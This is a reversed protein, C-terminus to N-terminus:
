EFDDLMAFRSSVSNQYGEDNDMAKFYANIENQTTGVPFSKASNVNTTFGDHQIKKYVAKKSTLRTHKYILFGRYTLWQDPEGNGKASRDRNQDSWEDKPVLKDEAHVRLPLRKGDKVFTPNKQGIYVEEKEPDDVMEDIQDSLHPLLQKLLEPRAAHYHMPRNDNLRDSTFRVFYEGDDEYEQEIFTHFVVSIWGNDKDITRRYLRSILTEGSKTLSDLDNKIMEATDTATSEEDQSSDEANSEDKTPSDPAGLDDKSDPLLEKNDTEDAIKATTAKSSKSTSKTDSM